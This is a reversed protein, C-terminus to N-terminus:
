SRQTRFRCSRGGWQNEESPIHTRRLSRLKSCLRCCVHAVYSSSRDVITLQKSNKRKSKKKYEELFSICLYLSLSPSSITLPSTMASCLQNGGGGDENFGQQYFFPLAITLTESPLVMSSLVYELTILFCYIHANSPVACVLARKTELIGGLSLNGVCPDTMPSSTQNDLISSWVQHVQHIGM